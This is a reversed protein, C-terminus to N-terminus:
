NRLVADTLVVSGVAPVLRLLVREATSSSKAQM